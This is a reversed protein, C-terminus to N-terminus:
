HDHGTMEAFSQGFREEFVDLTREEIEELEPSPEGHGHAVIGHIQQAFGLVAIDGVIEPATEEEDEALVDLLGGPLSVEDTAGDDSELTVTVTDADDTM